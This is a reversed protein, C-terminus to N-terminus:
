PRSTPPSRRGALRCTSCARSAENYPHAPVRVRCRDFQGLADEAPPGPNRCLTAGLARLTVKVSDGDPVVDDVEALSLQEVLKMAEFPDIEPQEGNASPRRRLGAVPM